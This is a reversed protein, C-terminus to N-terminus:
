INDVNKTSIVPKVYKDFMMQGVEKSAEEQSKKNQNVEELMRMMFRFRPYEFDPECCNDFLVPFREVFDPYKKTFESKRESTTMAVAARIDQVIEEIKASSFEMVDQANRSRKM